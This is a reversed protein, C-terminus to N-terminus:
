QGSEQMKKRFRPTLIRYSNQLGTKEKEFMQMKRGKIM